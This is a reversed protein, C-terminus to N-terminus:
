SLSTQPRARTGLLRTDPGVHHSSGQVECLEFAPKYEVQRQYDQVDQRCSSEPRCVALIESLLM